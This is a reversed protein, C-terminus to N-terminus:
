GFEDEGVEWNPGDNPGGGHALEPVGDDGGGGEGGADGGGLFGPEEEVALVVDEELVVLSESEVWFGVLPDFEGDREERKGRGLFLGKDAGSAEEEGCGRGFEAVGGNEFPNPTFGRREPERAAIREHTHVSIM